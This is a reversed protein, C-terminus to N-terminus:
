EAGQEPKLSLEDFYYTGSARGDDNVLTIRLRDNSGSAAPRSLGIPLNVWQGRPFRSLDILPSEYWPDDLSFQVVAHGADAPVYVRVALVHNGADTQVSGYPAFGSLRGKPAKDALLRLSRKGGLQQENEVIQFHKAAAGDFYWDQRWEEKNRVKESAGPPKRGYTFLPGEFGFFARDLREVDPKQWVRVYDVEYDAPLEDAHPYGLWSFIESDFYLQLPNTLVWGDGIESRTAERVLKGDVYFRLFAPDWEAGYVHFDDAVRFGLDHKLNYVKNLPVGGTSFKGPRWDHIAANLTDEEIGGDSKKPRGMQEYIDLESEHGLTWFASTMAADAAKSRVEMYGYLFRRNSIVGGTTVPAVPDGYRVGGQMESAFKYASDWKSRIKLKGDEVLVNEPAYQSPARGKWGNFGGGRGQVNWKDHDLTDGDFEDSVSSNLVWGGNNSPDSAPAPDRALAPNGAGLCTAGILVAMVNVCRYPRAKDNTM